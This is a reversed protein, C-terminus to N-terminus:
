NLRDQSSISALKIELLLQKSARSDIKIKNVKQVPRKYVRKWQLSILLQSKLKVFLFFLKGCPLHKVWTKDILPETETETTPTSECKSIRKGTVNEQPQIHVSTPIISFCSTILIIINSIILSLTYLHLNELSAGKHLRSNFNRCM